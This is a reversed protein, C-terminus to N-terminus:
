AITQTDSVITQHSRRLIQYSRRLIQYSRKMIQHSRRFMHYSRKMFWTLEGGCTEGCLVGVMVEENKSHQTSGTLDFQSVGYTQQLGSPGPLGTAAAGAVPPAVTASFVRSFLVGDSPYPKASSGDSLCGRESRAGAAQTATQDAPPSNDHEFGQTRTLMKSQTQLHELMGQLYVESQQTNLKLQSATLLLQHAITQCGLLQQQITPLSMSPSGALSSLLAQLTQLVSSSLTADMGITQSRALADRAAAAAAMEAHQVQMLAALSSITLCQGPGSMLHLPSQLSQAVPMMQILEQILYIQQVSWDKHKGFKLIEAISHGSHPLKHFPRLFLRRTHQFSRKM